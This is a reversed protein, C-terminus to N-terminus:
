FWGALVLGGGGAQVTPTLILKPRAAYEDRPAMEERERELRRHRAMKPKYVKLYQYATFGAAAIAAFTLGDTLLALTRGSSQAADREAPSADPDSFTGHKGVALIGTVVAGVTFLCTAGGGVYLAMKSPPPPLPPPPPPPPPRPAEVVVPVPDLVFTRESESGAEITLKAEATIFGDAQIALTYSGPALLLSEALPATGVEAGDLLVLAGEPEITLTVLGLYLLAADLVQQARPRLAEALPIETEAFAQRIKRAAEMWREFKLELAASAVLVAPDPNLEFSKDYTVIARAYEEKAKEATRKRRALKDGKKVMKAAAAALKRAADPDRVPADASDADLEPESPDDTVPEIGLDIGLDEEPPKPKEEEEPPPAPEEPDQALAPASALLVAAATVLGRM